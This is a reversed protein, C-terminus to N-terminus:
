HSVRRCGRPKQLTADQCHLYLSPMHQQPVDMHWLIREYDKYALSTTLTINSEWLTM